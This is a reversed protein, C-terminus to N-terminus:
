VFLSLTKYSCLELGNIPVKEDRVPEKSSEDEQREEQREEVNPALEICVVQAKLKALTVSFLQQVETFRFSARAVNNEPNLPDLFVAVDGQHQQQPRAGVYIVSSVIPLEHSPSPQAFASEVDRGAVSTSSNRSLPTPPQFEQFLIGDRPPSFNNGFLELFDLLLVGCNPVSKEAGREAGETKKVVRRADHVHYSRALSSFVMLILSFSSLGGSFPDNLGHKFLLQKLFLLVEPLGPFQPKLKNVFDVVKTGHHDTNGFTLDVKFAEREPQSGPPPLAAGEKAGGGQMELLYEFKIVPMTASDLIKLNEVGPVHKLKFGLLRCRLAALLRENNQMAFLQTRWYKGRIESPSKREAESTVSIVLDLDSISPVALGTAYSGFLLVEAKKEKCHLSNTDLSSSCVKSVETMIRAITEQRGAIERECVRRHRCMDSDVLEQMRLLQPRSYAEPTPHSLLPYQQQLQPQPSKSLAESTVPVSAKCAQNVSPSSECRFINNPQFRGQTEHQPSLFAPISFLPLVAPEVAMTPAHLASPQYRAVRQHEHRQSSDEVVSSKKSARAALSYFSAPESQASSVSSRRRLDIKAAAPRNKQGGPRSPAPELRQLKGLKELKNQVKRRLIEIEAAKVVWSVRHCGLSLIKKGQLHRTAAIANVVASFAEKSLATSELKGIPAQTQETRSVGMRRAGEERHEEVRRRREAEAAEIALRKNEKREEAEVERSIPNFECVSLHAELEQRLCICQCGMVANPCVVEYQELEADKQEYSTEVRDVVRFSCHNLHEPLLARKCSHECGIVRYPCAVIHNLPNYLVQNSGYLPHFDEETEKLRCRCEDVHERLVSKPGSFDCGAISYPCGVEYDEDRGSERDESETEQAELTREYDMSGRVGERDERDGQSVPLDAAADVDSDFGAEKVQHFDFDVFYEEQSVSSTSIKSRRSTQSSKKGRKRRRREGKHKTATFARGLEDNNVVTASDFPIKELADLFQFSDFNLSDADKFLSSDPLLKALDQVLDELEEGREVLPELAGCPAESGLKTKSRAKFEYSSSVDYFSHYKVQEVLKPREEPAPPAIPNMIQGGVHSEFGVQTSMESTRASSKFGGVSEGAGGSSQEPYTAEGPTHFGFSEPASRLDPRFTRPAEQQVSGPGGFYSPAYGQGTFQPPLSLQPPHPPHPVFLGTATYFGSPTLQGAEQPLHPPPQPPLYAYPQNPGTAQKGVDQRRRFKPDYYKRRWNKRPKQKRPKEHTRGYLLLKRVKREISKQSPQQSQFDHNLGAPLSTSFSLDIGQLQCEQLVSSPLSQETERNTPWRTRGAGESSEMETHQKRITAYGHILLASLM